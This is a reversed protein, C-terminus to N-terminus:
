ATRSMSRETCSPSNKESRPGLPHPLVVVNRMIAPNSNGSSPSMAYERCHSPAGVGGVLSRHVCHELRICKEACSPRPSRRSQVGSSSPALSGLDAFPDLLGEVHHLQTVAGICRGLLRPRAAVLADSEGPGQHVLRLNQEEVLREAGEVELEALGHLYFQLLQLRPHPDGEDIHGM